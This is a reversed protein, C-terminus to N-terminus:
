MTLMRFTDFLYKGVGIIIALAFVTYVISAVIIVLRVSTSYSTKWYLPIGLLGVHLVVVILLWPRDILRTRPADTTDVVGSTTHAGCQRCVDDGPDLATKCNPCIISVVSYTEM